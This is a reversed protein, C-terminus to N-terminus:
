SLINKFKLKVSNGKRNFKIEDALKSMLFVGRGNIAELNEPFTPDPVKEPRFGSGEDTIKVELMNGNLQIEIEVY